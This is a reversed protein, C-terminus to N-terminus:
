QAANRDGTTFNSYISKNFAIGFEARDKRGSTSKRVSMKRPIVYVLIKTNVENPHRLEEYIKWRCYDEALIRYAYGGVPIGDKTEM